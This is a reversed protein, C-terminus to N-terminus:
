EEDKPPNESTEATEPANSDKEKKDKERHKARAQQTARSHFLYTLLHNGEAQERHTTTTLIETAQSSYTTSKMFEVLLKEKKTHWAKPIATHSTPKDKMLQKYAPTLKQAKIADNYDGQGYIGQELNRESLKAKSGKAARQIDQMWTLPDFDREVRGLQILREVMAEEINDTIARRVM